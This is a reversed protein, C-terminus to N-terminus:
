SVPEPALVPQAAQRSAFRRIRERMPTEVSHFLGFSLALSLSLAVASSLAVHTWSMLRNEAHLVVYHVM